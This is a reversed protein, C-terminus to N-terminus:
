LRVGGDQGLWTVLCSQPLRRAAKEREEQEERREHLLIGVAALAMLGMVLGQGDRARGAQSPELGQAALPQVTALALLAPALLRAPTPVM